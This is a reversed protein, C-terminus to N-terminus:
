SGDREFKILVEYHKDYDKVEQVSYIKNKYEIEENLKLRSDPKTFLRYQVAVFVGYDYEAKAQSYPEMEMKFPIKEPNGFVPRGFDDYGLLEGEGFLYATKTLRM